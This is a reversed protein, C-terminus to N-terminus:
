NGSNAANKVTLVTKKLFDTFSETYLPDLTIVKFGYRKSLMKVPTCPRNSECVGFLVKQQNLIDSLEKIRRAGPEMGPEKTVILVNFGLEKFLPVFAGHMLLVTGKKVDKLEKLISDIKFKMMSVKKMFMDKKDPFLRSLELSLSDAMVKVLKPSLWIHPNVDNKINLMKEISICRKAMRCLKEAGPEARGSYVFLESKKVKLIDSPRPEYMHPNASVPYIVEYKFYNGGIEEMIGALPAISVSINVVSLLFLLIM